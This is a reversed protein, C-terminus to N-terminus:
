DELKFITSGINEGDVFADVGYVGPKYEREKDWYLCVDMSKNEYKVETKATYLIKKGDFEFTNADETSEAIVVGDPDSIRLYVTKMGAPIIKNESLIFCARVMDVRRAKHTLIEKGSRRVKLPEANFDYARLVSSLEVKQNLEENDRSLEANENNAVMLAEKMSMNDTTLEENQQQLEAIREEYQKMKQELKAVAAKYRSLDGNKGKLEATLREVEQREQEFLNGINEHELQLNNYKDTMVDLRELLVQKETNVVETQEEQKDLKEATSIWQWLAAASVFLLVVTLIMYLNRQATLKATGNKPSTSKEQKEM